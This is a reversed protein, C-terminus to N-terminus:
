LVCRIVLATYNDQYKRRTKFIEAELARCMSAPSSLRLCGSVTEPLLVGGVGDSCLLLVDGDRLPLPRRLYDVDVPGPMGLFQSLAEAGPIAGAAAPDASGSRISLLYREHLLNQERNLRILQGARYLYLFSDGVSAFFLKEDYIVCAVATSGGEGGLRDLVSEGARVLSERLQGALEEGPKMAAFSARLCEIVMQSALAGDRMGGMGDAVAALLGKERIMTVDTLNVFACADEQRERMGIGQLSAGQYSLLEKPPPMETQAPCRGRRGKLFRGM